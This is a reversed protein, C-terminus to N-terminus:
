SVLGGSEGATDYRDAYVYPVGDTVTVAEPGCVLTLTIYRDLAGQVTQTFTGLITAQVDVTQTTPTATNSSTFPDDGGNTVSVNGGARTIVSSALIGDVDFAGSGAFTGLHLSSNTGSSDELKDVSLFAEYIEVNAGLKLFKIVDGSTFTRGAPIKVTSSISYRGEELPRFKIGGDYARSTFTAM